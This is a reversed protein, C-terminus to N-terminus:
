IAFSRHPNSFGIATEARTAHAGLALSGHDMASYSRARRSPRPALTRASRAKNKPENTHVIYMGQHPHRAKAANHMSRSGKDQLPLRRM